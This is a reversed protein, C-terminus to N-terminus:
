ERTKQLARAAALKAELKAIIKEAPIWDGDAESRAIAALGRRAFKSHDELRPEETRISNEVLPEEAKCSGLPLEIEQCFGM